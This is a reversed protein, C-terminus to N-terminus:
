RGKEFIVVDVDGFPGISRSTWGALESQAGFWRRWRHVNLDGGYIAFRGAAPLVSAALQRAYTAAEPSTQFPLLYPRGTIPYVTLHCYLFGPLPYSPTWVPPQAEIFPSPLLVPLDPELKANLEASAKRWDSSQHPAWPHRWDGLVVLVGLGFVLAVLRWAAKPVFPVAAATAALAVGPLALSLYRNVFVSGRTAESYAYLALPHLLWFAAILTLASARPWHPRRWVVWAVLGCCLVLPLRFAHILEMPLPMPAFVHAGSQRLITLAHILVPVLAIAIVLVVTIASVWRVPTEKRGLRVAAYIALVLYFPWYILHVRWLLASAGALAAAWIWGGSDLWRIAAYVSALAICIGLAYPRADAAEYNFGKFSFCVFVAFWGCEEDLLRAAIRHVLFLAAAMALVSPLRYGAESFGFLRQVAGPLLYYVSAPVQPAASFSWHAAGFRVVFATGIEDIWFSSSLPMLWFRVVCAILLGYLGFRVGRADLSRYL